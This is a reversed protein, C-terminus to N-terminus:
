SLRCLAWLSPASDHSKAQYNEGVSSQLPRGRSTETTPLCAPPQAPPPPLLEQGPHGQSQKKAASPALTAKLRAEAM